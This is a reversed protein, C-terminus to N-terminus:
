GPPQLRYGVGRETLILQPHRPDEELQRRLSAIHVDLARTNDGDETHWVRRFLEERPVATGARSMLIALIRCGIPRLQHVAGNLQLRRSETDLSMSNAQVTRPAHDILLTEVLKILEQLQWPSSLSADAQEPAPGERRALALLPASFRQKLRATSRRGGSHPLDLLVLSPWLDLKLAQSTNPVWRILHRETDLAERLRQALSQTRSVVLLTYREM